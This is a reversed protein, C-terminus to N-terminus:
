EKPVMWLVIPRTIGYPFHEVSCVQVISCKRPIRLRCGSLLCGCWIEWHLKQCGELSGRDM